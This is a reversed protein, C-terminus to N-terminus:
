WRSRPRAKAIWRRLMARQNKMRSLPENDYYWRYTKIEELIDVSPFDDLLEEVFLSDVSQIFGYAPLHRELYDLVASLTPERDPHATHALALKLSTEPNENMTLEM